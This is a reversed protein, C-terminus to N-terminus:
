RRGTRRRTPPSPPSTLVLQRECLFDPLDTDYTERPSVTLAPQFAIPTTPLEPRIREAHSQPQHPSPGIIHHPASPNTPQRALWRDYLFIAANALLSYGRKIAIVLLMCVYWTFVASGAFLAGSIAFVGAAILLLLLDHPVHEVLSRLLITAPSTLWVSVPFSPSSSTTEGAIYSLLEDLASYRDGAPGSM